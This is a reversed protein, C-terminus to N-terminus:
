WSPIRYICPVPNSNAARPLLPASSGTPRPILTRLQECPLPAPKVGAESYQIEKDSQNTVRVWPQMLTETARHSNSSGWRNVLAHSYWEPTGRLCDIACRLKQPPTPTLGENLSGSSCALWSELQPWFREMYTQDFMLILM